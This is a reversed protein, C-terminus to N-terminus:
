RPRWLHRRLVFFLVLLWLLNGLAFGRLFADCEGQGTVECAQAQECITLM